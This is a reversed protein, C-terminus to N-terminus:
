MQLSIELWYWYKSLILSYQKVTTFIQQHLLWHRPFHQMFHIPLSLISQVYLHLLFLPFFSLPHLSFIHFFHNGTSYLLSKGNSLFSCFFFSILFSLLLSLFSVALRRVTLVMTISSQQQEKLFRELFHDGSSQQCVSVLSVAVSTDVEGLDGDM